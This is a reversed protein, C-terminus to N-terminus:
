HPDDDPAREGRRRGSFMTWWVVFVLVGLAALAELVILWMAHNEREPENSRWKASAAIRPASAPQAVAGGGTEAGTEAGTEVGPAAAPGVGPAAGDAAGVSGAAGVDAEKM